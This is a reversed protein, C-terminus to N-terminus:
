LEQRLWSKKGRKIKECPHSAQCENIVRGPNRQNKQYSRYIKRGKRKPSPPLTQPRLICPAQLVERQSVGGIKGRKMAKWKFYLRVTLHIFISEEKGLKMGYKEEKRAKGYKLFIFHKSTAEFDLVQLKRQCM